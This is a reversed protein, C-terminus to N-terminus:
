KKSNKDKVEKEVVKEVFFELVIRRNKLRGAETKDSALPKECGMGEIEIRHREVGQEVFYERVLMAHEKSLMYSYGKNKQFDTHGVIKVFYRKHNLLIEAAPRLVKHSKPNLVMFGNKEYTKINFVVNDVIAQEEATLKIPVLITDKVVVKDVKACGSETVFKVSDAATGLCKDKYDCVGDNDADVAADCGSENVFGALLKDSQPCLDLYDPVGDADSDVPCGVSDVAVNDPTDDCKDLNDAVGDGDSDYSYALTATSDIFSEIEKFKDKRYGFILNLGVSLDAQKTQSPILIDESKAYKLPINDMAFFLNVPGLNFNMGCGLNSFRGDLLSYTLSASFADAPRFNASIMLEESVNSPRFYTKSLLGFGIKDKLISYEAGVLAKATLWTKYSSPNRDVKFMDEAMEEYKEGYDTSDDGVDYVIGDFVFDGRKVMAQVNDKWHILGLDTVSASLQLQPLVKYTAGLDFAVGNGSAKAYDAVELDDNFEVDEIMSKEDAVLTVGQCAIYAEADGTFAWKDKGVELKLNDFKTIANAHGYLYKFKAGVTLKDNIQYSYGLGVESFLLAAVNLDDLDYVKKEDEDMGVLAIEPIAKPVSVQVDARTSLNVNFYSRKVRFGFNVLDINFDSFVRLNKRYADLFDDVGNEVASHLFTVTQPKGDLTVKYIVDDFTLSNNGAAVHLNSIGPVGIYFKCEPRFAPNFKNQLPNKKMFYMTNSMQGYSLSCFSCLILMLYKKM